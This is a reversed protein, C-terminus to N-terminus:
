NLRKLGVYRRLQKAMSSANEGQKGVRSQMAEAARPFVILPLKPKVEENTRLNWRILKMKFVMQPKSNILQEM